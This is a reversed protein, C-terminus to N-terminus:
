ITPPQNFMDLIEFQKLLVIKERGIQDRQVVDSENLITADCYELLLKELRAKAPNFLDLKLGERAQELVDGSHAM